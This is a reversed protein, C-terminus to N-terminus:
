KREALGIRGHSQRARVERPGERHLSEHALPCCRRLEPGRLSQKGDFPSAFARGQSIARPPSIAHPAFTVMWRPKPEAVIEKSGISDCCSGYITIQTSLFIRPRNFSHKQIMCLSKRSRLMRAVPISVIRTPSPDPRTRVKSRRRLAPQRCSQQGNCRNGHGWEQRSRLRKSM